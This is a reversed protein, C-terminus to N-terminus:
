KRTEKMTLAKYLDGHGKRMIKYFFVCVCLSGAIFHQKQLGKIKQKKKKPQAKKQVIQM